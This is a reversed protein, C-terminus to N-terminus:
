PFVGRTQQFPIIRGFGIRRIKYDSEPNYDPNVAAFPEDQWKETIAVYQFM